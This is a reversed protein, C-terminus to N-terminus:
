WVHGAARVANRVVQSLKDMAADSPPEDLNDFNCVVVPNRINDGFFHALSEYLSRAEEIQLILTPDQVAAPDTIRQWTRTSYWSGVHSGPSTGPVGMHLIHTPRMHPKVYNTDPPEIGTAPLPQTMRVLAIQVTLAGGQQYVYAKVATHEQETLDYEDPHEDGMPGYTSVAPTVNAQPEEGEPAPQQM